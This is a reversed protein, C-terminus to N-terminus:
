KIYMRKVLVFEAPELFEDGLRGHWGQLVERGRVVKAFCPDPEPGQGGPGHSGRNEVLNVYFDEGGPRGAVGLTFPSHNFDPSFEQFVISKYGGIRSEAAAKPGPVRALLDPNGTAATRAHCNFQLVHHANRILHCGDWYGTEVMTLFWHTVHPLLEFPAMELEIVDAKEHQAEEGKLGGLELVVRAPGKGWRLHSFFLNQKQLAQILANKDLREAVTDMATLRRVTKALAEDKTKLATQAEAVLAKQEAIEDNLRDQLNALASSLTSIDHQSAADRAHLVSRYFIVLGVFCVGLVFLLMKLVRNGLFTSHAHGPKAHKANRYSPGGGYAPALAHHGDKM